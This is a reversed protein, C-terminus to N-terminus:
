QSSSPPYRRPPDQGRHRANDQAPLLIRLPDQLVGADAATQHNVRPAAVAFQGHRQPRIRRQHDMPQIGIHRLRTRVDQRRTTVARDARVAPAASAQPIGVVQHPQHHHAFPRRRPQRPLLDLTHQTGAAHRHCRAPLHDLRPRRLNVLPGLMVMAGVVVRHRAVADDTRVSQSFDPSAM